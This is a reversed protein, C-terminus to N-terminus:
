INFFLYPSMLKTFAVAGSVRRSRNLQLVYELISDDDFPFAEKLGRRSNELMRRLRQESVLRFIRQPTINWITSIVLSRLRSTQPLASFGKLGIPSLLLLKDVVQPYKIAYSAGVFGGM